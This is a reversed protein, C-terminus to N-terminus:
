IEEYNDDEWIEFTEESIDIVGVGILDRNLVTLNGVANPTIYTADLRYPIDQILEILKDLEIYKWHRSNADLM